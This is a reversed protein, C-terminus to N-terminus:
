TAPEKAPQEAAAALEDLLGAFHHHQNQDAAHM